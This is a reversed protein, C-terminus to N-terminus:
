PKKSSTVCLLFTLPSLRYEGGVSPMLRQCARFLVGTRRRVLVNNSMNFRKVWKNKM